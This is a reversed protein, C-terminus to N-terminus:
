TSFLYQKSTAIQHYGIDQYIKNSTPNDRDTYLACFQYGSKLQERSAEFTLASAYGKKRFETPTYVLAIVVGNQTRRVVGCMSVPQNKEDFWLYLSKTKIVRQAGLLSQEATVQDQPVAQDFFSKWWGAVLQLHSEDALQFHGEPSKIENLTTLKYILQFMGKRQIALSVQTWALAFNESAEDPGVVGKITQKKEFLQAALYELASKPMATVILNLPNLVSVGILVKEQYLGFYQNNDPLSQNKAQHESFGLILNYEAENPALYERAIALFDKANNFQVLKM